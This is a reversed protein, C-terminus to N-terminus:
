FSQDDASPGYSGPIPINLLRLYVGLQARHHTTQSYAHRIIEYKTMTAYIQDANRLVWKGTLDEEKAQTLSGKGDEYSKEFLALIDATAEVPAPEYPATAFDLEETTLGLTVWSPLEAIHTALAKMKMSKEHPAWDFKNAPVLALMKRTVQAERELETLLLEIIKM